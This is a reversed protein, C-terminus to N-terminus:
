HFYRRAAFISFRDESSLLVTRRAIHVLAGWIEEFLWSVELCFWDIVVGSDYVPGSCWHRNVGMWNSFRGFWDCDCDARRVARLRDIWSGLWLDDVMRRVEDVISNWRRHYFRCVRTMIKPRLNDNFRNTLILRQQFSTHHITLRLFHPITHDSPSIDPRSNHSHLSNHFRQVFILIFRLSLQCNELRVM